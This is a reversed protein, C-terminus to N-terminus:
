PGLFQIGYRMYRGLEYKVRVHNLGFLQAKRVHSPVRAAFARIARANM